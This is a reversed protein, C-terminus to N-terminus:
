QTTKLRFVCCTPKPVPMCPLWLPFSPWSRGVEAWREWARVWGWHGGLAGWSLVGRAPSGCVPQCLRVVAPSCLLHCPANAVCLVTWTAALWLSLHPRTSPTAPPRRPPFRADTGLEGCSVRAPTTTSYHHQLPAVTTSCHHQLLATASLTPATSGHQLPARSGGCREKGSCRGGVAGSMRGYRWAWVRVRGESLFGHAAGRGLGWAGLYLVVDAPRERREASVEERKPGLGAARRPVLAAQRAAFPTSHFGALTSRSLGGAHVPTCLARGSRGGARRPRSAAGPHHQYPSDPAPLWACALQWWSGPVLFWSRGKSHAQNKKKALKSSYRGTEAPGIEKERPMRKNKRM